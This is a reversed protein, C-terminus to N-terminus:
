SGVAEHFASAYEPPITLTLMLAPNPPALSLLTAVKAVQADSLPPLDDASRVWETV